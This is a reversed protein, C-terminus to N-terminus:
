EEEAASIACKIMLGVTPREERSAMRVPGNSHDGSM